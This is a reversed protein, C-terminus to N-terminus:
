KGLEWNFARLVSVCPVDLATAIKRAFREAYQRTRYLELLVDAKADVARGATLWVEYMCNGSDYKVQLYGNAHIRKIKDVTEKAQQETARNVIHYGNVTIPYWRGVKEMAIKISM